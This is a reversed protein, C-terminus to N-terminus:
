NSYIRHRTSRRRRKEEVVTTRGQRFESRRQQQQQQQQRDNSKQLSRVMYAMRKQIANVYQTFSAATTRLIEIGMQLKVEAVRRLLDVFSFRDHYQQHNSGSSPVATSPTAADTTAATTTNTTTNTTTSTSKTSTVTANTATTTADDDLAQEPSKSATEPITEAPLQADIENQEDTQRRTRMSRPGHEMKVTQRVNVSIQEAGSADADYFKPVAGRLASYTPDSASAAVSTGKDDFDYGVVSASSEDKSVDQVYGPYKPAEYATRDDDGGDPRPYADSSDFELRDYHHNQYTRDRGDQTSQEFASADSSSASSAAKEQTPPVNADVASFESAAADSSGSYKTSEVVAYKTGDHTTYKGTSHDDVPSYKIPADHGSGYKTAYDSSSSSPQRYTTKYKPVADPRERSYPNNNNVGYSMGSLVQGFVQEEPQSNDTEVTAAPPTYPGAPPVHVNGHVRSDTRRLPVMPIAAGGLPSYLLLGALGATLMLGVLGVGVNPMVERALYNYIRTSLPRGLASTGIKTSQDDIKSQADGDSTKVAPRRKNKNKNRNKKKKHSKKAGKVTTTTTTATANDGNTVADQGVTIVATTATAATSSVPAVNASTVSPVSSNSSNSSNNLFKTVVVASSTVKTTLPKETAKKTNNASPRQRPPVHPFTVVPTGFRTNGDVAPLEPPVAEDKVATVAPIKGMVVPTKNKFKSDQLKIPSEVTSGGAVTTRETSANVNSTMTTTVMTRETSTTTTTTPRKKRTTSGSGGTSTEYSQQAVYSSATADVPKPVKKITAMNATPAPSSEAGLLIWTSLDGGAPRTSGDSSIKYGYPGVATSGRVVDDDTLVPVAEGRAPPAAATTPLYYNHVTKPESSVIVAAATDDGTTAAPLQSLLQDSVSKVSDGMTPPARTAHSRGDAANNVAVAAPEPFVVVPPVTM